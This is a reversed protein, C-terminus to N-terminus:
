TFKVTDGIMYRWLGCSTSIIMAYNKETEVGELPVVKSSDTLQGEDDIADMPAFEYYVDYDLM